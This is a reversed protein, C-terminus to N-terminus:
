TCESEQRQYELNPFKALVGQHELRYAHRRSLQVATLLWQVLVEASTM